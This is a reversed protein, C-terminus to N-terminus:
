GLTAVTLLPSTLGNVTPTVVIVAVELSSLLTLAELVMVTVFSGIGTAPTLKSRLLAENVSPFDKVRLALTKGELALSLRKFQVLPFLAIAVTELAPKTVPCLKPVVVILTVVSSPPNLSM